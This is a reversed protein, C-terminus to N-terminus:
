ALHLLQLWAWTHTLVDMSLKSRLIASWTQMWGQLVLLAFPRKEIIGVGANILVVGRIQYSALMVACGIWNFVMRAVFLHLSSLCQGFNAGLFVFRNPNPATFALISPLHLLVGAMFEQGAKSMGHKSGPGSGMFVNRNGQWISLHVHAGSGADAKSYRCASKLEITLLNCNAALVGQTLGM